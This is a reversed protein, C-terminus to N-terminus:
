SAEVKLRLDAAGSRGHTVLRGDEQVGLTAKPQHAGKGDLHVLVPEFGHAIEVHIM